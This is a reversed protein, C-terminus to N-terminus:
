ESQVHSRADFEEASMVFPHHLRVNLLFSVSDSTLKKRGKCYHLRVATLPTNMDHKVKKLLEKQQKLELERYTTREILM